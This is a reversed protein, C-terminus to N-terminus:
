SSRGIVQSVVKGFFSCNNPINKPIYSHLHDNPLDHYLQYRKISVRKHVAIKIQENRAKKRVTTSM